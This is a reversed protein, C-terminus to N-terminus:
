ATSRRALSLRRALISEGALAAAAGLLLYWWLSQDRERDRRLTAEPVVEDPTAAGATTISSALRAPDFRAFELERPDINVAVLRPREGPRGANRIQWAGAEGPVL